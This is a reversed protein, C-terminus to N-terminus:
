GHSLNQREDAIVSHYAVRLVLESKRQACASALEDLAHATAEAPTRGSDALALHSTALLLLTVGLCVASPWLAPSPPPDAQM